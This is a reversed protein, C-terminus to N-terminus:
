DTRPFGGEDQSIRIPWTAISLICAFAGAFMVAHPLGPGLESVPRDDPLLTALALGYAAVGAVLILLHVLRSAPWASEFHQAVAWLVIALVTALAAAVGSVVLVAFLGGEPLAIQYGVTAIVAIALLPFGTILALGIPVARLVAHGPKNGTRMVNHM